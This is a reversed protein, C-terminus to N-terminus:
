SASQATQCPGSQTVAAAEPGAVFWGLCFDSEFDTVVPGSLAGVFWTKDDVDTVLVVMAWAAEAAIEQGLTRGAPLLGVLTEDDVNFKEPIGTCKRFWLPHVGNM